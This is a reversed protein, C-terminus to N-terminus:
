FRYTMKIRFTTGNQEITDQLHEGGGPDNYKKNFLNYISGSIELGKILNRNLLTLNTIIFDDTHRGALTKRSSQYQVELGAFLNECALPVTLNLKALHAPSNVLTKGTQQDETQTYTYSFRGEWGRDWKGDLELGLGSAEINGTNNFILLGDTDTEQSIFNDIQYRFGNIAALIHKSFAHELVVEYNEITENNLDPNAKQSIKDDYYLEYMSPIRFAKGYLLKLSTEAAPKYILAIRPNITEGFTSYYDYRLGANLTFRDSIRFEDQAYLAWVYSDKKINLNDHYPHVDYDRQDQKFNDRFEAGVVVTHKACFEKTLRVESGWWKGQQFDKMLTIPPNNYIYDGHYYYSDYFIRGMVSTETDIAHNYKLDLYGREDVTKTRSDNFITGWPATPIHKERSQYAGELLFDRYSLKAFLNYNSDDDLGHAIGHNTAPSDFEKYYLRNQGESDYVSSSLVVDMGSTFRKGYSLRGTYTDYSGGSGAIEYGNFSNAERTIINITGLFANSGYLSSSPGRIVEVREILDVDLPFETGVAAMEGVNENMRHGDLLLLFRSNYDGPQSFGRAGLYTYNRDYSVYIGRVSRLIEALTRYGYRKINEATIVTVSAPADLVKQMYSSASYVETNLLEDLNLESFDKFEGAGLPNVQFLLAFIICLITAHQKKM